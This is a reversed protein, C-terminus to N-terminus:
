SESNTTLDPAYSLRVMFQYSAHSCDQRPNDDGVTVFDFAMKRTQFSRFSFTDVLSQEMSFEIPGPVEDPPVTCTSQSETEGVCYPRIDASFDIEFGVLADWEFVSLNDEKRLVNVQTHDSALLVVDNMNLFFDDDYEIVQGIGLPDFDLELGCLVVDEPLPVHVSEKVRASIAYQQPLLNDGEGWPCDPELEEFYVLFEFNETSSNECVNRIDEPTEIKFLQTEISCATSLCIAILLSTRM